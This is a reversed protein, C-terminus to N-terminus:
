HSETPMPRRSGMCRVGMSADSMVFAPIGLREVPKTTFGTGGMMGIKEELTLRGLLDEVRMEVPASTDQYTLPSNNAFLQFPM